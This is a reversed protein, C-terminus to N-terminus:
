DDDPTTVKPADKSDPKDNKTKPAAEEDTSEDAGETADDVAETPDVTSAKDDTKDGLHDRAVGDPAPGPKAGRRAPPTKGWQEEARKSRTHDVVQYVIIKEGPKLVTDAAMRNIRSLDRKGLGFKKGLSEFSEKGKATYEMRARGTRSEALDLHEKSGRTVLVIERDDLLSVKSHEADFSKDVWVQLVMKPHISADLSIGNWAGLQKAKVHFARAIDTLDDGTVVRYFVRQKGAVVADKDPVPVILAEGPKQDIGSAQVNAKAKARNKVRDAESIKPVVLVTGGDVESEHEVDNLERLKRTSIGFTTAIDEFREGHAVVYADFGDWESRLDALRRPFDAGSSLPVRVLYAARGPPTRGHRLQPNLKQVAGVSVSAAKAIVALSTSTTVNVDAWQEPKSEAVDSFGFVKRNHGVIACALAKPVYLTTEWALGNEYASLQYYDNTNYRAVSHLVAGYGANFGALAISWNGFRQYLDAFYDMVAITSRLPDNREDLWRNIELGYIRGGERMFQWLGAAGAYSSDFPDYSSEIMAVYLLDEPLHAARLHSVIMERYRGQAELWGRMINRGRPDNKYFELYQILRPTWTVPLDPMELDDLWALDPRLESPKTVGTAVQEPGPAEEGEVNVWPNSSPQPFAEHEFDRLIDTPRTCKESVPCGRVARRGQPDMPLEIAPTITPPVDAVGPHSVPAEDARASSAIAALVFPLLFGCRAHVRMLHPDYDGGGEAVM